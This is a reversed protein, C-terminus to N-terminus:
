RPQVAPGTPPHLPAHSGPPGAPGAAPAAPAPAVGTTAPKTPASVPKPATTAPRPTPEEAPAAETAGTEDGPKPKGKDDAETGPIVFEKLLKNVPDWYVLRGDALEYYVTDTKLSEDGTKKHIDELPGTDPDHPIPEPPVLGYQLFTAPSKRFQEVENYPWTKYNPYVKSTPNTPKLIMSLKTLPIKAHTKANELIAVDTKVEKKKLDIDKGKGGERTKLTLEYWYVREVERQVEVLHFPTSFDQRVKDKGFPNDIIVDAEGVDAGPAVKFPKPAPVWKQDGKADRVLKMALVQAGVMNPDTPDAGFAKEFAVRISSQAILGIEDSNPGNYLAEGPKLASAFPGSTSGPVFKAIIDKQHDLLGAALRPWDIPDEEYKGAVVVVAQPQDLHKGPDFDAGTAKAVLHARYAYKEWAAQSDTTFHTEALGNKADIAVLGNKDVGKAALPKWMGGAGIKYEIQVGLQDATNEVTEKLWTKHALDSARSDADRTSAPLALTLEVTGINDRATLTPTPLEYVYPHFGVVVVPGTDITTSIWVIHPLSPLEAAWRERMQDLYPPPTKLVPPTQKASMDRVTQVMENIKEPSVDKPRIDTNTFTNTLSWICLIGAIGVVAKEGHALALEQANM